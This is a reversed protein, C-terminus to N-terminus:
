GSTPAKMASSVPLGSWDSAPAATGENEEERAAATGEPAASSPPNAAVCMGEDVACKPAGAAGRRIIATEGRRM